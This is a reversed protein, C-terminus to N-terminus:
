PVGRSDDKLTSRWHRMAQGARQWATERATVGATRSVAIPFAAETLHTEM